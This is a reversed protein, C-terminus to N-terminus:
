NLSWWKRPTYDAALKAREDSAADAPLPVFGVEEVIRQGDRSLAFRLFADVEPELAAGQTRNVYLLLPRALPYKGWLVWGNKLRPDDSDKYKEVIFPYYRTEEFGDGVGISLARVKENRYGIGSYGIANVDAGVADVVARSDEHNQVHGAFDGDCLAASKFYAYTGSLQNRGHAVIKREGPLGHAIKGWETLLTGGCKYTDSFIQDLQQLTLGYVPNDKHVFVALADLGVTVALPAHGYKEPFAAIEEKTMERSMPGIRSTGALLAPPATASGKNELEVAIEPHLKTFAEVWREMIVRMTDSGVAKLSGSIKVSGPEYSPLDQAAAPAACFLTAALGAIVSYAFARM